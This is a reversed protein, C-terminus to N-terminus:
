VFHDLNYLSKFSQLDEPLTVRVEQALHQLFVCKKGAFLSVYNNGAIQQHESAPIVCFTNVSGPYPNSQVREITVNNLITDNCLTQNPSGASANPDESNALLLDNMM